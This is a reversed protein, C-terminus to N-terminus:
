GRQKAAALLANLFTGIKPDPRYSFERTADDHHMLMM